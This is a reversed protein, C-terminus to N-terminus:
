GRARPSGGMIRGALDRLAEEVEERGLNLDRRLIKWTYLDTAAILQIIRREQQEPALRRLWPAFVRRVWAHHYTRGRQTVERIAPIRDEQALFHLVETGWREYDAVLNAIAGTLDGVKTLDRKARIRASRWEAVAALLDEKSGFRRLVTQVTVGARAAIADLAVQDYPLEGFLERAAELIRGGTAEAAKARAVM